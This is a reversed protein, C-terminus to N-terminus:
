RLQGGREVSLWPSPAARKRAAGARARCPRNDILVGMGPVGGEVQASTGYAHYEMIPATLICMITCRRLKGFAPLFRQKLLAPVVGECEYKSFCPALWGRRRSAAVTPVMFTEDDRLSTWGATTAFRRGRRNRRRSAADRGHIVSWGITTAFRRCRGGRRRLAADAMVM